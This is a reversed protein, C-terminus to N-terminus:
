NFSLLLIFGSIVRNGYGHRCQCHLILGFFRVGGGGMAVENKWISRDFENFDESLLVQGSCIRGHPAYPGSVTTVSPKCERPPIYARHSQIRDIVCYVLLLSIALKNM